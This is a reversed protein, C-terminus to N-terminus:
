QSHLYLTLYHLILVTQRCLFLTKDIYFVKKWHLTSSKISCSTAIIKSAELSVKPNPYPIKKRPSKPLPTLIVRLCLTVNTILKMEQFYGKKFEHLSTLIGGM